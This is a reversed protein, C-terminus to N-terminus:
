VVGARRKALEDEVFVPKTLTTAIIACAVATALLLILALTWGGSLDHMVGVILPGLAGLSYGITQAVGSLAVAGEHSRTRLNILTLCAPYLLPGLGILVVWVITLTAPVLLLGLYGVVFMGIGAYIIIGINNMRAVLVPVILASPVGMLGWIALYGGAELPTVGALDVLMQPLWAIAAYVSFTSVAFVIGIMWAVRSRWMQGALQPRPREVERADSAEAAASQARTHKALVSLWPVLATVGLAGWVALSLRWGGANALPLSLAAASATSLSVVTVYISTMLGVRDAFYRKVLPPLLVNGLGLGALAIITGLLLVAFNSAFARLVQGLILAIIAFVLLREVGVRRAAISGFLACLAFAIPAVSGIVGLDLSTLPIDISIKGIIPSIASVATRLNLAVLLIGLLAATRGRWLPTKAAFITV